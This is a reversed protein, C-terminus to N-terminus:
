VSKKLYKVMKYEINNDNHEELIESTYEEKNFKPFYVDADSYTDDIETLLLMNCYDIFEQYISAGGIVVFDEKSEEIYSLIDQINHFVYVGEIEIDSRTLVFHTRGPLLKPLSELTKRGMIINKGMTNNKFFKMDDKFHWILTNNVGLENNKGIAAILSLNNM